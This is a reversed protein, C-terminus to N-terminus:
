RDADFRAAGLLEGISDQLAVRGFRAIVIPAMSWADGAFTPLLAALLPPVQRHVALASLGDSIIIVLDPEAASQAAEQLVARSPEDLQRGLDPRQLFTLRDPAASDVVVVRVGLGAMNASLQEADFTNHVAERAAAHAAKFDLWEVTPLSGGARGLAIRAPTAYRLQNWGDLTVASHKAMDICQRNTVFLSIRIVLTPHNRVEWEGNTM